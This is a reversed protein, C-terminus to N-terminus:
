GDRRGGGGYRDVLMAGGEIWPRAAERAADYSFGRWVIEAADNEVRELYFEATYEGRRAGDRVRGRDIIIQMAPRKLSTEFSARSGFEVRFIRARVLDM